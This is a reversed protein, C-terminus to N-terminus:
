IQGRANCLKERITDMMRVMKDKALSPRSLDEVMYTMHKVAEHILEMQEWTLSVLYKTCSCGRACRRKECYEPNLATDEVTIEADEFERLEKLKVRRRGKVGGLIRLFCLLYHIGGAESLGVNKSEAMGRILHALKRPSYDRGISVM